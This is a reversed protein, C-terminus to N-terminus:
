DAGNAAEHVDLLVRYLGLGNANPLLDREAAIVGKASM